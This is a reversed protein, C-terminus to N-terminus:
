GGQEPLDRPGKCLPKYDRGKGTDASVDFNTCWSWEKQVLSTCNRSPLILLTRAANKERLPPGPSRTAPIRHSSRIEDRSSALTKVPTLSKSRPNLPPFLEGVSSM